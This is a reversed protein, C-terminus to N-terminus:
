IIPILIKTVYTKSNGQTLDNLIYEEFAYEGLIMSKKESYIMMQKYTESIREYDGVHIGILYMGKKRVYINSSYSKDTPIFFYDYDMFTDTYVDIRDTRIMLGIKELSDLRNNNIFDSYKEIFNDTLIEAAKNKDFDDSLLLYEDNQINTEFVCSKDYIMGEKTSEKLHSIYRKIQKLQEISKDLESEKESLLDLFIKPNRNNMYEKINDLSMGLKKLASIMVFTDYQFYSYYRYGNKGYKDPKFLGIEDYYILVHKPINCLKAFEGTSLLKKKTMYDEM